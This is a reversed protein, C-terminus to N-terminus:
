ISVQSPAGMLGTSFGGLFRGFLLFYHNQGLAILLWCTILPVTSFMMAPRRGFREMVPGSLFAGVPSALSHISAIYNLHFLLSFFLAIFKICDFRYLYLLIFCAFFFRIKSSSWLCNKAISKIWMQGVKYIMWVCLGCM